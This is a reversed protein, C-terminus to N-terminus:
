QSLIKLLYKEDWGARKRKAEIGVKVSKDQKLLNMALRRLISLNEASNGKRVRSEDERFGMDLVWHMSNEIEWHTRASRLLAKADASLSSIYYRKQSTAVGEAVRESEVMAVSSLAPWESKGWESKGNLYDIWESDTVSRCRRTEIRGHSKEVQEFFDGVGEDWQLFTDKVDDYLERQNGKLALVYDAGQEVIERAVKKQCGMADTTVICGSVDLSRLLQPIAMIENSHGDVKRQGLVLRNASSWASVLHLASKGNARDASRRLTKGDIAIVEGKTMESVASVWDMFCREFQEADLMAFVRGFTDHSPIGNPLELFSELWERKSKGFLEVDTWGNAGCIVACIAIAIVDTLNHRKTREVRPDKLQSFQELISIPADQM